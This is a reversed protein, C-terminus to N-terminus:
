EVDWFAHELIATAGSATSGERLRYRGQSGAGNNSDSWKRTIRQPLSLGGLGELVCFNVM